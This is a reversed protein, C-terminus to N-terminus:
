RSYRYGPCPLYATVTSRKAATWAKRAAGIAQYRRTCSTRARADTRVTFTACARHSTGVVVQHAGLRAARQVCSVALAGSRGLRSLDASSANSERHADVGDCIPAGRGDRYAMVIALFDQRYAKMTHVSPKRTQRDHLFATFWDPLPDPQPADSEPDAQIPAHAPVKGRYLM